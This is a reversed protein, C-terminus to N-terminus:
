LPNLNNTAWPIEEHGLTESALLWSGGKDQLEEQKSKLLLKERFNDKCPHHRGVRSNRNVVNERQIKYISTEM